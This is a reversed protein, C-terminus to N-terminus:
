AKYYGVKFSRVYIGGLCEIYYKNNELKLQLIGLRVGIKSAYLM